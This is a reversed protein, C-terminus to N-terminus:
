RILNVHGQVKEVDPGYLHKMRFDWTYTGAPVPNGKYTGDWGTSVDNTEFVKEGWRNYIILEYENLDLGDTIVPIFVPNFGDENPTFSNPIYYTIGSGISITRTLSDMCGFVNSVVLKVEYANPEAPYIYSPSFETSSEGEIGFNWLYTEAESSLNTFNVTPDSILIEFPSYQFDAQPSPAVFVDQQLSASCGANTTLILTSIYSGSNDYEYVPNEETSTGGDGFNWNWSVIEDPANVSSGLSSFSTERGECVADSSIQVIPKESLVLTIEDEGYCGGVLAQLQYVGEELEGSPAPDTSVFGNPGTWSYNTTGTLSVSANLQINEGECLSGSTTIDVVMAPTEDIVATLENSCGGTSNVTITYTGAMLGSFVNSSQVAGGNLSYQLGPESAQLEIEGDASDNCTPSTVTATVQPGSSATVTYSVTQLVGCNSQYDLEYTGPASVQISPTTAGTSWEIDTTQSSTLTITENPCIETPGSITPPNTGAVVNVQITQPTSQNGCADVVVVSVSYTGVPTTSWDVNIAGTGNITTFSATSPIGYWLYTTLPVNQISYWHPEVVGACVTVDGFIPSPPLLPTNLQPTTLKVNDLFLLEDARNTTVYVTFYFDHVCTPVTYTFTHTHIDFQANQAGTVITIPAQAVGDYYPIFILDEGDDWGTGVCAPFRNGWNFTLTKPFQDSDALGVPAFNFTRAVSPGNGSGSAFCNGGGTDGGCVLSRAGTVKNAAYTAETLALGSASAGGYNWSDGLEGGQFALTIQTHGQLALFFSVLVLSIGKLSRSFSTSNMCLGLKVTCIYPMNFSPFTLAM